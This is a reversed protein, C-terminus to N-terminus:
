EHIKKEVFDKYVLLAETHPTLTYYILDPSYSIPNDKVEFTLFNHDQLHKLKIKVIEILSRCYVLKNDYQPDGQNKRWNISHCNIEYDKLFHLDCTICRTQALQVLNKDLAKGLIKFARCKSSLNEINVCKELNKSLHVMKRSLTTVTSCQKLFPLRKCLDIKLKRSEFSDDTRLNQYFPESSVLDILHNCDSSSFNNQECTQVFSAQTKYVVKNKVLYSNM